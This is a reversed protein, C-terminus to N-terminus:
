KKLCIPNFILVNKKSLGREISTDNLCDSEAAGTNQSLVNYASAALINSDSFIASRDNFVSHMDTLTLKKAKSSLNSVM